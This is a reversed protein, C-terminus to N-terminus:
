TIHTLENCVKHIKFPCHMLILATGTSTFMVYHNHHKSVHVVCLNLEEWFTHLKIRLWSGKWAFHYHDHINVLSQYASLDIWPELLTSTKCPLHLTLLHCAVSDNNPLSWEKFNVPVVKGVRVKSVLDNLIESQVIRRGKNIISETFEQLVINLLLKLPQLIVFSQMAKIIICHRTLREVSNKGSPYYPYWKWKCFCM